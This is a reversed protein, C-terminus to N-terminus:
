FGNGKIVIWLTKILIYFDMWVSFNSIYYEDKRLRDSFTTNNRGMVQWWGTLGPLVRHILAASEGMDKLESPLYARPGVLSMEGRIVNWIQPLEDLSTKRLFYGVKTVRPDNRLKHFTQYENFLENNPFIIEQFIKDADIVMTRFKYITFLKGNKGLRKQPFLIPGPSDLRILIALLVSLPVVIILSIGCLFLDSVRKVLISIPDLLNYKVSLAPYDGLDLPQMALSGLPTGGIVYILEPFNLSLNYIQKKQFQNLERSNAVFVVMRIGLSRVKKQTTESIPYYIITGESSCKFGQDLALAFVPRFAMRRSWQLKQITERIEGKYGVIVVPKSWWSFLSGRNHLILRFCSIFVYSFLWAGLFVIRSIQDSLDFFYFFLALIFFGISINKIILKLETIGTKGVAPYLGNITFLCSIVITLILLMPQIKAIEVIGGLIPILSYRIRFSIAFSLTLAFVDSLWLVLSVLWPKYNNKFILAETSKQQM